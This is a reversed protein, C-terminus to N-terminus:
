NLLEQFYWMIHELDLSSVAAGVASFVLCILLVYIALFIIGLVLGAIAMGGGKYGPKKSQLYGIIGFIIALVSPIMWFANFFVSVIGLVLSAVAFGSTKEMPPYFQTNGYPNYENYGESSSGCRTCFKAQDDMPEGCCNCIKM